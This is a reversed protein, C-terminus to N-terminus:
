IPFVARYAPSLDERNKRTCAAIASINPIESSCLRFANQVAAGHTAAGGLLSVPIAFAFSTRLTARLTTM